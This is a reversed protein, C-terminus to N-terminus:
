GSRGHNSHRRARPRPPTFQLDAHVLDTVLAIAESATRFPGVLADFMEFSTLAHLVDVTEDMSRAHPFQKAVRELM